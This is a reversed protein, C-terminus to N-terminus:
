CYLSAVVPPAKSKIKQIWIATRISKGGLIGRIVDVHEVMYKELAMSEM